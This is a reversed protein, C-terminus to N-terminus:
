SLSELFLMIEYEDTLSCKESKERNLKQICQNTCEAIRIYLSEPFLKRFVDFESACHPIDILVEHGKEVPMIYKPEFIVGADFKTWSCKNGLSQDECNELSNLQDGIDQGDDDDMESEPSTDDGSKNVYKANALPVEADEDDDDSPVYSSESASFDDAMDDSDDSDDQLFYDAIEKEGLKKRPCMKKMIHKWYFLLPIILRITFKM